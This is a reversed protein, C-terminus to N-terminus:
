RVQCRRRSQHRMVTSESLGLCGGIADAFHQSDVLLILLHHLVVLLQGTIHTHFMVRNFQRRSHPNKACINLTLHRRKKEEDKDEEALDLQQFPDTAGDGPQLVSLPLLSHTFHLCFLLVESVVATDM